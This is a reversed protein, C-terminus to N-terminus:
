DEVGLDKRMATYAPPWEEWLKLLFARIEDFSGDSEQRAEELGKTATYSESMGKRIPELAKLVSRTGTLQTEALSTAFALRANQLRDKASNDVAGQKVAYLYSMLELRYHRATSIMTVYCNRKNILVKEQQDRRYEERRQSRQQEFEERRARASLRQTVIPALLTGMVGVIAITLATISANM